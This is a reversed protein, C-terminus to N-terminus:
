FENSSGISSRLDSTRYRLRSPTIPATKIGNYQVAHQLPKQQQQWQQQLAYEQDNRPRYEGNAQRIAAEGKRKLESASDVMALLGFLSNKLRVTWLVRRWLKRPRSYQRDSEISYDEHSWDGSFNDEIIMSVGEYGGILQKLVNRQYRLSNALNTEIMLCERRYESEYALADYRTKLQTLKRAFEDNTRRIEEEHKVKIAAIKEECKKGYHQRILRKQEATLEPDSKTSKSSGSGNSNPSVNTADGNAGQGHAYHNNDRSGNSLASIVTAVGSYVSDRLNTVYSSNLDRLISALTDSINSRRSSIHASDKAAQDFSKRETDVRKLALNVEEDIHNIAQLLDRAQLMVNKDQMNPHKNIVNISTDAFSRVTDSWFDRAWNLIQLQSDYTKQLVAVRMAHQQSDSGNAKNTNLALDNSAANEQKTRLLEDRLDTCEYKKQDLENQCGLLRSDLANMESELNDLRDQKDFLQSELESVHGRTDDLEQQLRKLDETSADQRKNTQAAKDLQALAAKLERDKDDLRRRIASAMNGFNERISMREDLDSRADLVDAMDILLTRYMNATGQLHGRASQDGGETGAVADAIGNSVDSNIDCALAQDITHQNLVQCLKAVDEMFSMNQRKCQEMEREISDIDDWNTGRVPTMTLRTSRTDASMKLSINQQQLQMNKSYIRDFKQLTQNNLKELKSCEQKLKRIRSDKKTLKDILRSIENLVAARNNLMSMNIKTGDRLQIVAPDKNLVTGNGGSSKSGKIIVSDESIFLSAPPEMNEILDERDEASISSHAGDDDESNDWSPVVEGPAAAAATATEALMGEAGTRQQNRVLSETYSRHRVSRGWQSSLAYSPLKSHEVEGLRKMLRVRERKTRMIDRRLRKVEAYADYIAIGVQELVEENNLELGIDEAVHGQTQEVADASGAAAAKGAPLGFLAYDGADLPRDITARMMADDEELDLRDEATEQPSLLSDDGIPQASSPQSADGRMELRVLASKLVDLQRNVRLAVRASTFNMAKIRELSESLEEVQGTLYSVREVAEEQSKRFQDREQRTNTVTQRLSRLEDELRCTQVHAEELESEMQQKTKALEMDQLSCQVASDKTVLLSHAGFEEKIPTLVKRQIRSGVSATSQLSNSRRLPSSSPKLQRVRLSTDISSVEDKESDIINEMADLHKDLSRLYKSESSDMLQSTSPIMDIMGSMMSTNGDDSQATFDDPQENFRKKLVSLERLRGDNHLIINALETRLAANGLLKDRLQDALFRQIKELRAHRLKMEKIDGELKSVGLSTKLLVDSLQVEDADEEPLEAEDPKPSSSASTSTAPARSSLLDAMAQQASRHADREADLNEKTVQLENHLGEIFADNNALDQRLSEIEADKDIMDAHMKSVTNQLQVLQDDNHKLEDETSDAAVDEADNVANTRSQIDGLETELRATRQSLEDNRLALEKNREELLQKREALRELGREAHDLETALQSERERFQELEASVNEAGEAEQKQLARHAAKLKELQETLSLVENTRDEGISLLENVRNSCEEKSRALKDFDAAKETLEVIRNKLEKREEVLSDLQDVLLARDNVTAALESEYREKLQKIEDSEASLSHPAQAASISSSSNESVTQHEEQQVTASKLERNQETLDELTEKLANNSDRLHAVEANLESERSALSKLRDEQEQLQKRTIESAERMRLTETVLESQQLQSNKLERDYEVLQKRMSEGQERLTRSEAALAQAHERAESANMRSEHIDAQLMRNEADLKDCVADLNHLEADMERITRRDEEWAALQQNREAHMTAMRAQTERAIRRAQGLEDELQGIAVLLQERSQEGDRWAGQRDSEVDGIRRRWNEISSLLDAKDDAFNQRESDWEVRDLEARRVQEYLLQRESESQHLQRQLDALEQQMKQWARESELVDAEVASADHKLMRAFGDLQRQIDAISLMSSEAISANEPLDSEAPSQYLMRSVSSLGRNTPTSDQSDGRNDYRADGRAESPVSTIAKMALHRALPNVSRSPTYSMRRASRPTRRPSMTHLPTHASRSDRVSTPTTTYNSMTNSRMPETGMPSASSTSSVTANMNSLQRIQRNSAPTRPDVEGSSDASSSSRNGHESADSNDSVDLDKDHEDEVPTQSAAPRPSIPLNQTWSAFKRLLGGGIGVGGVGTTSEVNLKAPSLPLHVMPSVSRQRSQSRSETGDYEGRGTSAQSDDWPPRTHSLSSRQDRFVISDDTDEGDALGHSELSPAFSVGRPTTRLSASGSSPDGRLASRAEHANSRREEMERAPVPMASPTEALTRQVTSGKSENFTSLDFTDDINGRDAADMGHDESRASDNYSDDLAYGDAENPQRSGVASWKGSVIVDGKLKEAFDTPSESDNYMGSQLGFQSQQSGTFQSLEPGVSRYGQVSAGPTDMHVTSPTIMNETDRRLGQNATPTNGAGDLVAAHAEPSSVISDYEFDDNSDDM